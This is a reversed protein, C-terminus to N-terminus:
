PAIPVNDIAAAGAFDVSVTGVDAPPATVMVFFSPAEGDKVLQIGSNGTGRSCACVGESDVLAGYRHGGDYDIISVHSFDNGRVLAYSTLDVRDGTANSVTFDLRVSRAGVRRLGQITITVGPALDVAMGRASAGSATAQQTAPDQQTQGAAACPFGLVAAVLLLTTNGLQM